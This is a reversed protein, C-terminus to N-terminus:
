EKDPLPLTTYPDDGKDNHRANMVRNCISMVRTLLLMLRMEDPQELIEKATVAEKELTDALEVLLAKSVM